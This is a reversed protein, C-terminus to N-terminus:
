QGIVVRDGARLAAPDSPTVEVLGNASVGATVPVEHRTGDARVVTVITRTDAGSTIAAEPVTLVAKDTAAATITIRVNQGDFRTNWTGSPLVELPLFPVGGNLLPGSPQGNQSGADAAGKPTTGNAKDGPTVLSGVSRVRGESSLGLSEATIEVKMGSKVLPGRTPDLYGTLHLGGTALSVVPGSVKDGIKAPLATVRAPLTPVFAMESAPVFVGDQAEALDLAQQAQVAQQEARALQQRPTGGGAASGDGKGDEAASGGSKGDGAAASASPGAAPAAGGAPKGSTADQLRRVQQQAEDVATRAQQVAQQTEKGTIPAPYGMQRYLRSVAAKTAAGFYGTADGGQYLGLGGLATQLQAIDRGSEGPLMDRYGPIAGPLVYVPRDSVEVLPQAARAKDGLHVLTRTLIVASGAPNIGGFHSATAAVSAPTVSFPEGSSFDGRLVVTNALKQYVVPATLVSARPARADAALQAPSKVLMSGALGGISLLAAAGAVGIVLRRRRALRSRTPAPTATHEVAPFSETAEDPTETFPQESDSTETFPQESDSSGVVPADLEPRPGPVERRSEADRQGHGASTKM